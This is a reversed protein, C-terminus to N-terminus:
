HRDSGAGAGRHRAHHIRHEIQAEVVLRHLRQRLLGAVPAEGIVAVPAEDGHIGVHHEADAVLMELFQEVAELLPLAVAEVGVEGGVIPGFQDLEVLLPQLLLAALRERLVRVFLQPARDARHETGPHVLAGVGVAAQM